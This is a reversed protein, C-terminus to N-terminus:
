SEAVEVMRLVEGDLGYLVVRGRLQPLRPLAASVNAALTAILADLTAADAPDLVRVVLEAV